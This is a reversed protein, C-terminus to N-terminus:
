ARSKLGLAVMGVAAALAAASLLLGLLSQCAPWLPEAARLLEDLQQPFERTSDLLQRFGNRFGALAAPVLLLIAILPMLLQM